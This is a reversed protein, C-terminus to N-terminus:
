SPYLAVESCLAWTHSLSPYLAVESYLVWHTLYIPITPKRPTCSRTHSFLSLPSGRQVPGLTLYFYKEGLSFVGEKDIHKLKSEQGGLVKSSYIFNEM